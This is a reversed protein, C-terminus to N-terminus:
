IMFFQVVLFFIMLIQANRENGKKKVKENM